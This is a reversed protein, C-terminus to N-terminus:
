IMCYHIAYSLAETINKVNLKSFIQRRYYKITETSKCMLTAIEKISHGHITMRLMEKEKDSFFILPYPKWSDSEHSYHYAYDKRPITVLIVPEKCHVSPSVIGILQQPDGNGDFDALRLKHCVMTPRKGINIHFNLFFNLQRRHEIPINEYGSVILSKIDKLFVREDTPLMPSLYELGTDLLDEETLGCRLLPHNSTFLFKGTSLDVIYVGHHSLSAFVNAIEIYTDKKSSSISLSDTKTTDNM